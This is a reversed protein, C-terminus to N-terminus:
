DDMEEILPRVGRRHWKIWHCHPHADALLEERGRGAPWIRLRLQFVQDEQELRLWALPQGIRAQEAAQEILATLEARESRSLYAWFISHFIVTGVGPRM